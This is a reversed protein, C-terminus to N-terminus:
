TQDEMYKKANAIFEKLQDKHWCYDLEFNHTNLFNNMGACDFWQVSNKLQEILEAIEEYSECSQLADCGSCSGWGFCLYGYMNDKKYLVWSDGQYDDEDVQVVVKGLSNIIPQYDYEYYFFEENQQPYLKKALTLYDM